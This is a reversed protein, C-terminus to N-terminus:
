KINIVLKSNNQGLLEKHDSMEAEIKLKIKEADAKDSGKALKIDVRM